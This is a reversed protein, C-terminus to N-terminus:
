KQLRDPIAPPTWWYIPMGYLELLDQAAVYGDEMYSYELWIDARGEDGKLYRAYSCGWGYRVEVVQNPEPLDGTAPSHLVIEPKVARHEHVYAAGLGLLVGLVFFSYMFYFAISKNM